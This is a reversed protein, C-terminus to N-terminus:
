IQSFENALNRVWHMNRLEAMASLAEQQRVFFDQASRAEYDRGVIDCIKDLSQYPIKISVRDWNIEKPLVVDTDIIIPIRGRNLAEYIRFSYNETGRPCVVYTSREIHDKYENLEKESGSFGKKEVIDFEISKCTQRNEKLVQM